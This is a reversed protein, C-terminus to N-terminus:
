NKTTKFYNIDMFYIEYYLGFLYRLNIFTFIASKVTVSVLLAKALQLIPLGCHPTQEHTLRIAHASTNIINCHVDSNTSHIM